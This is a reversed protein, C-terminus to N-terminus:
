LIALTKGHIAHFCASIHIYRGVLLIVERPERWVQECRLNQHAVSVLQQAQENKKFESAHVKEQYSPREYVDQQKSTFLVTLHRNGKIGKHTQFSHHQTKKLQIPHSHHLTVPLNLLFCAETLHRHFFPSSLSTNSGKVPLSYLNEPPLKFLIVLKKQLIKTTFYSWM